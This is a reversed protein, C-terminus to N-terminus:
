ARKKLLGYGLIFFLLTAPEPIEHFVLSSFTNEDRIYLKFSIGDAWYGNLMSGDFYFGYGYLNIIAADTNYACIRNGFTSTQLHYLNITTSDFLVIDPGSLAGGYANFTSTNYLELYSQILGGTMNVTADDFLRVVNFTNGDQIIGDTYFDISEALCASPLIFALLIISKTRMEEGGKKGYPM